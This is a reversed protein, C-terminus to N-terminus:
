GVLKDSYFEALPNEVIRKSAERPSNTAFYNAAFGDNYYVHQVPKMSMDVILLQGGVQMYAQGGNFHYLRNELAAQDIEKAWESHTAPATKM